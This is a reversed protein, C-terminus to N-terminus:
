NSKVPSGLEAFFSSSFSMYVHMHIWKLHLLMVENKVAFKLACLVDIIVDVLVAVHADM